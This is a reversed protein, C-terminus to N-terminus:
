MKKGLWTFTYHNFAAFPTGAYQPRLWDAVAKPAQVLLIDIYPRHRPCSAAWDAAKQTTARIIPAETSLGSDLLLGEWEYAAYLRCLSPNHLRYFGIVYDRARPDDPALIDEIVLQGGIKLARACEKLWPFADQAHSFVYACHIVDYHNDAFPLGQAQVIAISQAPSSSICALLRGRDDITLHLREGSISNALSQASIDQSHVM